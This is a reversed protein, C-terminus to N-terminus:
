TRFPRENLEVDAHLRCMTRGGADTLEFDVTATGPGNIMAVSGRHNAKMVGSSQTNSRNGTASVRSISLRYQGSIDESSEMFPQFAVMTGDGISVGCRAIRPDLIEGELIRGNMSAEGTGSIIVLGAIMGSIFNM